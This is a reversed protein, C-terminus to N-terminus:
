YRRVRSMVYDRADDPLDELDVKIMVEHKRQAILERVDLQAKGSILLRMLEDPRDPGADKGKLEMYEDYEAQDLIYQM